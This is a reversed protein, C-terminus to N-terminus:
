TLHMFVIYIFAFCVNSQRSSLMLCRCRTQSKNCAVSNRPSNSRGFSHNKKLNFTIFTSISIVLFLCWWNFSQNILYILNVPAIRAEQQHYFLNHVVDFPVCEILMNTIISTHWMIYAKTQNKIVPMQRTEM